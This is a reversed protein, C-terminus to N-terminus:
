LPAMWAKVLDSAWLRACFPMRTLQTDGPGTHVGNMGLVISGSRTELCPWHTGCPRGAWGSSTAGANTKKAESASELKMLPSTSVTSPPLVVAAHPPSSVLRWPALAGLGSLFFLCASSSALLSLRRWRRGRGEGKGKKEKDPRPARPAKATLGAPT